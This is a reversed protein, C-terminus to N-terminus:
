KEASGILLRHPHPTRLQQMLRAADEVLDPYDAAVNRTEGVDDALNYLELPRQPNESVQLRVAKWDGFRVAQKGGQEYFEWYLHDHAPQSGSDHLTPVLSIGDTNEPSAIGALECATPVFDWFAGAHDSRHGATIRGPAWVVFPVRIGGEYLDRKGGRLPGNSDFHDPHAGGEFHPGNDSSFFVYTNDDIGLEVLKDLIHGVSHDLYQVMGVFTAKPHSEARYHEGDPFPTEDFAGVHRDRFGAPAALDAHPQQLSVHLFFPSKQHDEIWRLSQELFVEGSYVDGQKGSNNDFRVQEGNQWLTKPYYRHAARHGLFGYFYDFGKNRPLLGDNSRCALGSKGIMATHYGAQQLLAAITVDQPDARFCIEGNFRQFVHGTHQGTLLCARSPACVTSGSYFQTFVIGERAMRDLCPTEFRSQGMFGVDGYGLDDALIFIINPKTEDASLGAFVVLSLLISLPAIRNMTSRTVRTM